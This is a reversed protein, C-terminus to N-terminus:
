NMEFRPWHIGITEVCYVIIQNWFWSKFTWGEIEYTLATGSLKAAKSNFKFFLIVSTSFTLSIYLGMLNLHCMHGVEQDFHCKKFYVITSNRLSVFNQYLLSGLRLLLLIIMIYNHMFLYSKVHFFPSPTTALPRVNSNLTSSDLLFHLFVCIQSTIQAHLWLQPQIMAFLIWCCFFISLRPM